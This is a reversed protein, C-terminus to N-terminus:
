AGKGGHGGPYDGRGAIVHRVGGRPNPVDGKRRPIVHLHLHDVTQGAAEGVNVGVNYGDPHYRADLDARVERVARAIALIEDQTADFLSAVHRRVIVLTHGETVPYADRIVYVLDSAAVVREPPM